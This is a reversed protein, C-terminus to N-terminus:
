FQLKTLELVYFTTSEWKTGFCRKKVVFKQFHHYKAMKVTWEKILCYRIINCAPFLKQIASSLYIDVPSSSPLLLLSM